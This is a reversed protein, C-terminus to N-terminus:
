IKEIYLIVEGVKFGFKSMETKNFLRKDDLLFMWDDLTVQYIEGDIPIELEYQWFLAAGQTRGLAKGVVDQASGQYSNDDLKTLQWTRESKEGDDFLFWEQIEGRDGLWNALMDVEFRRILTGSRDLVIGYAKLKGDFFSDLHLEPTTASYDELSASGCASLLLILLATVFALVINKM